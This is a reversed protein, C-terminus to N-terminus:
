DQANSMSIPNHHAFLRCFGWTQSGTKITLPLLVKLIYKNFDM